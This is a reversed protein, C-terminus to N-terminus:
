HFDCKSRNGNCDCREKNKTGSCRGVKKFIYDSCKGEKAFLVGKEFETLYVKEEVEDFYKCPYNNEKVSQNFWDDVYKKVDSKEYKNSDEARYDERFCYEGIDTLCFALNNSIIKFAKGGFDFTDGIQLNSSKLNEIQLAPRVTNDSNEVYDGNRRPTGDYYVYAANSDTGPSRLWWWTDYKGMELPLKEAEEISLLTAGTIDLDVDDTTHKQVLM